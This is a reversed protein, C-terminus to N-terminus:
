KNTIRAKAVIMPHDTTKKVLAGRDVRYDSFSVGKSELGFIWDINMKKPTKGNPASASVMDTKSTMGHYYEERENMDGTVFVPKGTERELRNVLDIQLAMAKDRWKEHDGQKKTSAPNHFNSFYAEQGTKKNRLLVVPMKREHGDFYPIEIHGPKVMEWTDKRWAISNVVEKRGLQFGPYVGYKDGAVKQFEKFQDGQFEQFGVVDVKHQDLLQAAQRIRQVGTAMGPRESRGPVTHSSGLVNFSSIVFETTGKPPKPQNPQQPNPTPSPTPSPAPSLWSGFFSSISGFLNKWESMMSLPQVNAPAPAPAPAPAVPTTTAGAPGLTALILGIEIQIAALQQQLQALQAAQSSVSVTAATAPAYAQTPTWTAVSSAPAVPAAPASTLFSPLPAAAPAAPAYGTLSTQAAPKWNLLSAM